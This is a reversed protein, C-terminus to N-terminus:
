FHQRIEAKMFQIAAVNPLIPTNSVLNLVNQCFVLGETEAGTQNAIINITKIMEEKSNEALSWAANSLYIQQSINHYFEERITHVMEAQIYQTSKGESYITHILHTFDIRELYTIMREYAQLRLPTFINVQEQQNELIKLRYSQDLFSKMMWCVAGLSLLTPLSYKLIELIIYEMTYYFLILAM